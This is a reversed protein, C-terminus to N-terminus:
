PGMMARPTETISSKADSGRDTLEMTMGDKAVAKILGFMHDLTAWGENGDRQRIHLSRFSGAPVSVTEWGVVETNECERAMQAAFDPMMRSTMMGVMQQPLKMAPQDGAKMVVSRVRAMHYALGPVLMQMIMQQDKESQIAMEYWYYTSDGQTETGVIAMRMTTGEGKGGTVRYAAWQGVVPTRAQWETCLDPVEQAGVAQPGLWLAVAALILLRRM